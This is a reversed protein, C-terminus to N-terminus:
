GGKKQPEMDVKQPEVLLVGESVRLLQDTIIRDDMKLTNSNGTPPFVVRTGDDQLQGLRVSRKRAKNEQDITWVFKGQQETMIVQDKILYQMKPKGIPLQVRVFMGPVLLYSDTGKIKPNAFQGRVSISGTGANVQNDMFNLTGEHTYQTEDVLKMLVRNKGERIPTMEGNDIAKKILILTPEDVDFYAYMPDMSVVTTLQTSDANIINGQTKYYRSMRGNIDSTVKTWDLNLQAIKQNEKALDLSAKAQDKQAKYQQLEQDSVAGKVTDHLTKFRDYTADAYDKSAKGQEVAAKAAALQAEFPEPDIECLVDGKQVMEGEKANWKKLQGTVRSQVTVLDKTNIRGTYYVNEAVVRQFPLAYNVGKLVDAGKTATRECGTTMLLFCGISTFFLIALRHM